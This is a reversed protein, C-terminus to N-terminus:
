VCPLGPAEEAQPERAPEAGTLVPLCMPSTGGHETGLEQCCVLMPNGCGPLSLATGWVGM